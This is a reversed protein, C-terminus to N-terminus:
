FYHLLFVVNDTANHPLRILLSSGPDADYREAINSNEIIVYKKFKFLTFVNSFLAM